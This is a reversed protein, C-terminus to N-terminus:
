DLQAADEAQAANRDAETSKEEIVFRRDFVNPARAAQQVRTHSAFVQECSTFGSETAM